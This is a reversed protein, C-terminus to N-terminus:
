NGHRKFGPPDQGLQWVEDPNPIINLQVHTHDGGEVTYTRLQLGSVQAKLNRVSSIQTIGAVVRDGVAVLPDKTHLIIVDVDNWADPKIHFEFDDVRGYLKYARIRMVTGTVPSYVPTGPKAGCDLATEKNGGTNTRWLDLVSGTWVGNEDADTAKRPWAAPGGARQAAVAAAAASAARIHTLPKMRYSDRFSTPHFAACTLDAPSVPLLLQKGRFSAFAPTPTPAAEAAGTAVASWAAAPSSAVASPTGAKGKPVMLAIGALALVVVAVATVIPLPHPRAARRRRDARGAM